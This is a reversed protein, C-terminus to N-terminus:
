VAIWREITTISGELTLSTFQPFPRLLQGRQVTPQALTGTAVQGYFPNPVLEQLRTGLALLEDPLQNLQSGYQAPLGTGKSGAYAVEVIMGRGLEQQISFNWQQMYGTRFDRLNAAGGQGVLTNL